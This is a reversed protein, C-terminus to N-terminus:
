LWCLGGCISEYAYLINSYIHEYYGMTTAVERIDAIDCHIIGVSDM